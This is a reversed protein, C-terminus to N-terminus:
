SSRRGSTCSRPLRKARTATGSSACHSADLFTHGVDVCKRENRGFVAAFEPPVNYVTIDSSRNKYFYYANTGNFVTSGRSLMAKFCAPGCPEVDCRDDADEVHQPAHSAHRAEDDYIPSCTTVCGIWRIRQRRSLTSVPVMDDNLVEFRRRYMDQHNSKCLIVREMFPMDCDLTTHPVHITKLKRVSSLTCKMGYIIAHNVIKYERKSFEAANKGDNRAM